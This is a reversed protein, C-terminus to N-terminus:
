GAERHLFALDQDLSISGCLQTESSPTEPLESTNHVPLFNGRYIYAFNYVRYSYINM